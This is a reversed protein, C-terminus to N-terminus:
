LTAILKAGANSTLFQDYWSCIAQYAKKAQALKDRAASSPRVIGTNRLVRVDWVPRNPDLTAVLKSAFSAECRGPCKWLHDLADDFGPTPRLAKCEQMCGYYTRYWEAPRQRIRYFGNFKRQFERSEAVNTDSLETMIELYQGIGHRAKQIAAEIHPTDLMAAGTGRARHGLCAPMRRRCKMM